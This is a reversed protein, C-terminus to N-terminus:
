KQVADMEDKYPQMIKDFQKPFTGAMTARASDVVDSAHVQRAGNLLMMAQEHTLWDEGSLYVDKIADWGFYVGFEAISLWERTILSQQKAERARARAEMKARDEPSFKDLLNTPPKPTPTAM